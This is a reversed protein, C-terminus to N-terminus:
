RRAEIESAAHLLAAALERAVSPYLSVTDEPDNKRYETNGIRLDVAQGDRRPSYGSDISFTITNDDYECDVTVHEHTLLNGSIPIRIM